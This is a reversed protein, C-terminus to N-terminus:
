DFGVRADTGVPERSRTRRADDLRFSGGLNPLTGLNPLSASAVEGPAVTTMQVASSAMKAPANAPPITGIRRSTGM